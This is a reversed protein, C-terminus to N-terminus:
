MSLMYFMVIVRLETIVHIAYLVNCYCTTGYDCPKIENGPVRGPVQISRVRM